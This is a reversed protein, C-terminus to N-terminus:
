GAQLALLPPVMLSALIRADAAKADDFQGEEGFLNMAGINTECFRVPVNMISTVGLSFIKEHDKYTGRIDARGRAIYVEGRALVSQNTPYDAIRKRGGVPYAVADSSHIREVEATERVYRFMTFGKAGLIIQAQAGIAELIAMPRPAEAAFAALRVIDDLELRKGTM